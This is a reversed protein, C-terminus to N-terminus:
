MDVCICTSFREHVSQVVILDASKCQFHDINQFPGYLNFLEQLKIDVFM